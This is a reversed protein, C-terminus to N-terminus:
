SRRGGHMGLFFLRDLGRPCLQHLAAYWQERVATYQEVPLEPVEVWITLYREDMIEPDATLMTEIPRGPFIRQTMQQVPGLYPTLGQEDAFTFVDAPCNWERTAATM